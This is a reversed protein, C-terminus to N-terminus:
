RDQGTDVEEVIQKGAAVKDISHITGGLEEIAKELTKFDINEGVISVKVTETKQDIELLSVNVGVVQPIASLKEAFDPLIPKHPKLVDLVILKLNAM